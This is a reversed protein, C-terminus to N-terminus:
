QSHDTYKCTGHMHFANSMRELKIKKPVAKQEILIHINIMKRNYYLIFNTHLNWLFDMLLSIITIYGVFERISKKDTSCINHMCIACQNYWWKRRNNREEVLFSKREERAADVTSLYTKNKKKPLFILNMFIYFIMLFTMFFDRIM